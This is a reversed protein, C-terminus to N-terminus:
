LQSKKMNKKILNNNKKKNCMPLYKKKYNQYNIKWNNKKNKQKKKSNNNNYNMEIKYKNKM